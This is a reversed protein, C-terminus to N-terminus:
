CNKSNLLLKENRATRTIYIRDIEKGALIAEM